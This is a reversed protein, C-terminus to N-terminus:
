GTLHHYSPTILMFPAYHLAELHGFDINIGHGNFISTDLQRAPTHQAYILGYLCMSDLFIELVLYTGWKHLHIVANKEGM